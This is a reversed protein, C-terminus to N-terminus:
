NLSYNKWKAKFKVPYRELDKECMNFLREYSVYATETGIGQFKYQLDTKLKEQLNNQVYALAVSKHKESWSEKASRTENKLNNLTTADACNEILQTTQDKKNESCGSLLLGLVVIGLLKKM